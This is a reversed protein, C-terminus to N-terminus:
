YHSREQPRVRAPRQSNRPHARPCNSAIHGAENCRFCTITGRPRKPSRAPSNSRSRSPSRDRRSRSRSLSRDRRSRSRSSHQDDRGHSDSRHHSQRDRSRSRRPSHSRRRWAQYQQTRGRPDPDHLRRPRDWSSDGFDSNDFNAALAERLLDDSNLSALKGDVNLKSQLLTRTHQPLGQLFHLNREVPLSQLTFQNCLSLWRTHYEEISEDRRKSLRTLANRLGALVSDNFFRKEMAAALIDVAVSNSSAQIMSSQLATATNFWTAATGRFVSFLKTVLSPADIASSSCFSRVIRIFSQFPMSDRSGSWTVPIKDRSSVFSRFSDSSAPRISSLESTGSTLDISAKDVVPPSPAINPLEVGTRSVPMKRSPQPLIPAFLDEYKSPIGEPLHAAQLAKLLDVSCHWEIDLLTCQMLPGVLTSALAPSFPLPPVDEDFLANYSLLLDHVAASLDHRSVSSHSPLASDDTASVSRQKKPKSALPPDAEAPSLDHLHPSDPANDPDDAVQALLPPNSKKSKPKAM